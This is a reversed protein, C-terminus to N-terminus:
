LNLLYNTLNKTCDIKKKIRYRHQEVGRSTISLISAIERTNFGFKILACVRIELETLKSKHGNLKKFFVPNLEDFISLFQKWDVTDDLRNNLLKITSNINSRINSDNNLSDKKLKEIIISLFNNESLTKIKKTVLERKKHDLELKLKSNEKEKEINDIYAELSLVTNKTEDNYLKEKIEMENKICEIYLSSYYEYDTHNKDILRCIKEIAYIKSKLHKENYSKDIALKYNEIANKNKKLSLLTDAINNYSNPIKNYASIKLNIDLSEQFLKLAKKFDNKIKYYVALDNLIAPKYNVDDIKKLFSLAKKNLEFCKDIKKMSFYVSSTNVIIPILVIYDKKELALNYIENLCNLSKQNKGLANYCIGLNLNIRIKPIYDNKCLQIAEQAKCLYDLSINNLNLSSYINALNSYAFISGNIALQNSSHMTNFLRYSDTSKKIASKINGLEQEVKASLALNHAVLFDLNEAILLKRLKNLSQNRDKHNLKNDEFLDSNLKYLLEEKSKYKGNSVEKSITIKEKKIKAIINKL